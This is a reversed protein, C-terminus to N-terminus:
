EKVAIDGWSIKGEQLEQYLEFLEKLRPYQDIDEIELANKLNDLM